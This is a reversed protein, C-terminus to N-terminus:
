QGEAELAASRFNEYDRIYDSEDYPASALVLCVSGGSFNEIERWIM